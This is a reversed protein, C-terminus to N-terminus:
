GFWDHVVSHGDTRGDEEFVEICDTSGVEIVALVTGIERVRSTGKEQRGETADSDLISCRM